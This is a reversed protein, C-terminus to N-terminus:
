IRATSPDSEAHASSGLRLKRVTQQLIAELVRLERPTPENELLIRNLIKQANVRSASLDFGLTTLWQAITKEPYFLPAPRAGHTLPRAENEAVATASKYSPSKSLFNEVLFVSLLVAHSLNLSIFDGFTPLACVHHARSIEEAALGHDEPGFFLYIPESPDLLRSEPRGGLRELVVELNDPTRFHGSRGSLAIRLGEGEHLFFEKPDAYVTCERLPEQSGAAGQKAEEDRPDCIPAILILRSGGMNKMARAAMGVNRAYIPRVLVVSIRQSPM